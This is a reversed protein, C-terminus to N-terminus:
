SSVRASQTFKKLRGFEEEVAVKFDKRELVSEGEYQEQLKPLNSLMSITQSTVGVLVFENGIKLLSVGAKNGIPCYSLQEILYKRTGKIQGRQKLFRAFFYTAAGAALFVLIVLVFQAGSPSAVIPKAPSNFSALPLEEDRLFSAATAAGKPFEISLKVSGGEKSLHVRHSLEESSGNIVIRSKVTSKDIAYTGIRRILSHPASLEHNDSIGEDIQADNFTLEVVNNEIHMEPLSNLKGITFLVDAQDTGSVKVSSVLESGFAIATTLLAIAVLYSTTVRNM